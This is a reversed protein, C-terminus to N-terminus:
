YVINPFMITIYRAKLTLYLRKLINFRYINNNNNKQGSFFFFLLTDWFRHTKPWINHFNDMYKYTHIICRISRILSETVHDYIKLLSVVFRFKVFNINQIRWLITQTELFPLSLPINMWSLKLISPRKRAHFKSKHQWPECCPIYPTSIYPKAPCRQLSKWHKFKRKTLM